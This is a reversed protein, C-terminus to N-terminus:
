FKGLALKYKVVLQHWLPSYGGKALKLSYPDFEAAELADLYLSTGVAPLLLPRATAPLLGTAARADDLHGQTVWM